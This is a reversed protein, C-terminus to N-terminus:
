KEKQQISSGEDRGQASSKGNMNRSELLRERILKDENTKNKKSKIKSKIKIM